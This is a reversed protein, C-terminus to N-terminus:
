RTWHRQRDDRAVPASQAVPTFHRPRDPELQGPHVENEHAGPTPDPFGEHHARFRLGVGEGTVIVEGLVLPQSLATLVSSAPSPVVSAAGIVTGGDHGLFQMALTDAVVLTLVTPTVAAVSLESSVVTVEVGGIVLPADMATFVSGVEAPTVARMAVISGGNATLSLIPVDPVVTRSSASEAEHAVFSVSGVTADTSVVGLSLTVPEIQGVLSALVPTQSVAGVVVEADNAVITATVSAPSVALASIASEVEFQLTITASHVRQIVQPTDTVLSLTALEPVVEVGGTAIEVAHITLATEIVSPSVTTLATVDSATFTLNVLTPTLVVAGVVVAADHATSSIDALVSSVAVSSSTTADYGVWDASALTPTRALAGAVAQADYTVAGLDAVVSVVTISVTADNANATLAVETATRTVSGVTVMADNAVFTATGLTPTISTAITADNATAALTVALPEVVQAFDLSELEEYTRTELGEYTKLSDELEGYLNNDPYTMSAHPDHASLVLTPVDIAAFVFVEPTSVAFNLTGVVPEVLISQSTIEM